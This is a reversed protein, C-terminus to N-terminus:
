CFDNIIAVIELRDAGKVDLGFEVAIAKLLLDHDLAPNLIM